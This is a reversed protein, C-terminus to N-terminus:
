NKNEANAVATKNQKGIKDSLDRRDQEFDHDRAGEIGAKFDRKKPRGPGRKPEEEEGLEVDFHQNNSLKEIMHGHDDTNLETEKGDYFTEGGMDVVKSDGEPATYIVKAKRM